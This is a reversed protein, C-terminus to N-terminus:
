IQSFNRKNGSTDMAEQGKDLFSCVLGSSSKNHILTYLSATLIHSIWAQDAHVQYHDDRGM